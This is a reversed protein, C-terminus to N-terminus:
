LFRKFNEALGLEAGRAERRAPDLPSAGSARRVVPTPLPESGAAAPEAAPTPAEGTEDFVAGFEAKVDEVFSLMMQQVIGSATVEAESPTIGLKELDERFEDAEEQLEDVFENFLKELKGAALKVIKEAKGRHYAGGPRRGAGRGMLASGAQGIAKPIQGVAQGAGAFRARMRDLWGEELTDVEEQILQRLQEDSLNM